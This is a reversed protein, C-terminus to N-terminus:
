AEPLTRLSRSAHIHAVGERCLGYPEWRCDRCLSGIDHPQVREAVAACVDAWAWTEGIAIGIQRAIEEDKRYVSTNDCHSDQDEPFAACIDDPGHILEIKTEPATRLREYVLTMNACFGASYGKGRYGLLCLLHHGRLKITM